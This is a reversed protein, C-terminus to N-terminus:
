TYRVDLQEFDGVLKDRREEPSPARSRTMRRREMLDECKEIAMAEGGHSAGANANNANINEREQMNYEASETEVGM